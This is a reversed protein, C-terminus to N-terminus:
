SRTSVPPPLQLPADETATTIEARDALPPAGIEIGLARIKLLCRERATALAARCEEARRWKTEPRGLAAFKQYRPRWVALFPLVDETLLGFALARITDGAGNQRPPPMAKLEARIEAALADVSAFAEGLEGSGSARDCAPIRTVAEVYIHWGTQLSAQNSPKTMAAEAAALEEATALAPVVAPREPLLRGLGPMRLAIGIQWSREVLRERTRALDARCLGILPWDDHRRGTERWAEIRPLWRGICPQIDQTPIELVFIQPPEAQNRQMATQPPDIVVRDRMRDALARLAALGAEPAMDAGALVGITSITETLVRWLLARGQSDLPPVVDAADLRLSGNRLRAWGAVVAVGHALMRGPATTGLTPRLRRAVARRVPEIPNTM